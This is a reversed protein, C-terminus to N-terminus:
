RRGGASGNSDPAAHVPRGAKKKRTTPATKRTATRGRSRSPKAEAARATKKAAKGVVKRRSASKAASSADGAVQPPPEAEPKAKSPAAPAPAPPALLEGLKELEVRAGKMTVFRGLLEAHVKADAASIHRELFGQVEALDATEAVLEEKRLVYLTLEDVPIAHGELAYLVVSAAAARNVGEISELYERAERRGRQHLFSLELADQRKRIDNLAAVIRHAKDTALPVADEIMEALEVPPTVRLENLDVMQRQLKRFAAQGKGHTSCSALIGIVLQEIPDSPDPPTPKGHKRVLQQFLKKLRKAYESGHKM